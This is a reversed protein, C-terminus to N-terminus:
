STIMSYHHSLKACIKRLMHSIM